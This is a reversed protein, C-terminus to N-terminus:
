EVTRKDLITGSEVANGTIFVSIIIYFFIRWVMDFSAFILKFLTDTTSFVTIWNPRRASRWLRSAQREAGCPVGRREAGEVVFESRVVRACSCVSDCESDCRM